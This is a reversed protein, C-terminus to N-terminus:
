PGGVAATAVGRRAQAWARAYSALTGRATAEWTFAAEREHGRAVLERALERDRLLELM